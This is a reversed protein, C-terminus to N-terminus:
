RAGVPEELAPALLDLSAEDAHRAVAARLAPQVGPGGAVATDLLRPEATPSM